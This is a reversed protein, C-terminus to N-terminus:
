FQSLLRGRADARQGRRVLALRGLVAKSSEGDEASADAEAGSASPAPAQPGGGAAQDWGEFPDPGELDVEEVLPPPAAAPRAAPKSMGTPATGTKSPKSLDLHRVRRVPKRVDNWAHVRRARDDAELTVFEPHDMKFGLSEAFAIGEDVASNLAGESDIPGDMVFRRVVPDEVNRLLVGVFGKSGNWVASLAACFRGSTGDGELRVVDVSLSLARILDPRLATPGDAEIFM